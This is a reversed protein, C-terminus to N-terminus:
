LARCCIDSWRDRHLQSAAALLVAESAESAYRLLGRPHFLILASYPLPRFRVEGPKQAASPLPKPDLQKKM